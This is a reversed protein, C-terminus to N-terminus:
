RKPRYKTDVHKGDKDYVKTEHVQANGVCVYHGGPYKQKANDSNRNGTVLKGQNNTFQGGLAEAVDKKTNKSSSFWGM